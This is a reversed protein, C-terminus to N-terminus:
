RGDAPDIPDDDEIVGADHLLSFVLVQEFHAPYVRLKVPNLELIHLAQNLARGGPLGGKASSDPSGSM